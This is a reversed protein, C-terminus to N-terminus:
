VTREVPTTRPQSSLAGLPQTRGSSTPCPLHPSSAMRASSSSRCRFFPFIAVGNKERKVMSVSSKVKNAAAIQIIKSAVDKVGYRGDGGVVLTAGELDGGVAELTCQVFNEVYNAQFFESCKKRLGSTGPKQGAFPSTTVTEVKESM